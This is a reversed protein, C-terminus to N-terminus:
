TEAGDDDTRPAAASCAPSAFVSPAHPRRSPSILLQKFKGSVKRLTSDGGNRCVSLHGLQKLEVIECEVRRPRPQQSGAAALDGQTGLAEVDDAVQQLMGAPDDALVLEHLRYPGAHGDAVLGQRLADALNTAREALAAHPDDPGHRPAAVHDVNRHRRRCAGGRDAFRLGHIGGRRFRPRRNGHQRQLGDASVGGSRARKVSPRVSSTMVPRDRIRARQTM